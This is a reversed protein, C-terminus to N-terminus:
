ASPRPPRSAAVMVLALLLCGGAAMFVPPYGQSEALLGLALSGAAGGMQFFSQFLAMVKGRELPGVAEVALANFAPYFLGHTLGIGVGFVPLSGPWLEAMETVVVAYGILAGIATTRRGVRDMLHGLATRVFVAGVAYGVFFGRLETMGLEIAFPQYFNFISVLAAGVLCIVAYAHLQGPRRMVQILTPIPDDGHPRPHREHVRLSLLGCLLAGGAATAFAAQWGYREAVTEVTAPAIANMSLFTLGFLGIAQAVREPPAHDIALAGGAAFAMAFAVGQLIRLGYLLPGVQDVATFALSAVTMIAAGGTLFRRRGFRDVAVGLAPMALVVTVGYVAAIRGIEGPGAGLETDLFKPLMFFSSFAYGFGAQSTLLSVFGTTFLPPRKAAAAPTPM